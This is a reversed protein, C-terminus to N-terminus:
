CENSTLTPVVKQVSVRRRAGGAVGAWTSSQRDAGEGARRFMV